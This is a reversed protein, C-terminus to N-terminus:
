SNLLREMLAAAFPGALELVLNANADRQEPYDLHRWRLDCITQGRGPGPTADIEIHVRPALQTAARGTAIAAALPDHLACSRTGLLGEYFDFYFDLMRGIAQPVPRPSALLVQRDAETLQQTMTVDLPVLTLHPWHASLVAVAAEPDNGINAEAVPSVNGPVAAAGGMITLSAIHHPFAPDLALALAINTLPGTAVIHLQGRHEHALRVIMQAAAETSPEAAPSPLTIGGIGNHGHVHPAGGDYRGHLPHHAGIAVPIDPRGALELLALTNAAAQDPDVNGFVNTIGVLDIDPEGLLYIIAMADDIGTDCDLLFPRNPM